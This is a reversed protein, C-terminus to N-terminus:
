IEDPFILAKGVTRWNIKLKKAIEEHADWAGKVAQNQKRAKPLSAGNRKLLNQDPRPPPVRNSNAGVAGDSMDKLLGLYTGM